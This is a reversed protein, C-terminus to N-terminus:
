ILDWDKIEARCLPCKNKKMNQYCIKHTKHGCPEFKVWTGPEDSLCICCNEGMEQIYPFCDFCSTENMETYGSPCHKCKDYSKNLFQHIWTDFETVIEKKVNFWKLYPTRLNEKTSLAFLFGYGEIECDCSNDCDCFRKQINIFLVFGNFTIQYQIEGTEDLHEYLDEFETSKTENLITEFFLSHKKVQSLVWRKFVTEIRSTFVPM